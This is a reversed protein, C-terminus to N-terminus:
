LGEGVKKFGGRKVRLSEARIISKLDQVASALDANLIWYDYDVISRMEDEARAMRSAIAEPPDTARRIIRRRLEELSPPMLFVFVGEPMAQRLQTAGQIDIDSIVIKGEAVMEDVFARPTGYLNGCYDAWELLGDSKILGEFEQRSLFFYDRGDKEGPRPPRTTASVSYVMDPIKGLVAGLLTDKGVSSPGSLVILFGQRSM